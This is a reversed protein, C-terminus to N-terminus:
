KPSKKKRGGCEFHCPRDWMHMNWREGKEDENVRERERCGRREENETSM